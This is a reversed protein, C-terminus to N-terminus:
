EEVVHPVMFLWLIQNGTEDNYGSGIVINKTSGSIYPYKGEPYFGFFSGYRNAWDFFYGAPPHPLLDGLNSNSFDVSVTYTGAPVNNLRYYNYGDGSGGTAVTYTNGGGTFRIEVGIPNSTTNNGISVYGYVNVNGPDPPPPPVGTDGPASPSNPGGSGGGNNGGSDDCGMLGFILLIFLVLLVPKKM